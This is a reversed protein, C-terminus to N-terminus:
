VRFVNSPDVAGGPMARVREIFEEPTIISRSFRRGLSLLDKDGTVLHDAKGAIALQLFPTDHPDRCAPVKPLRSMNVTKCYPLYDALLEQQEENAALTATLTLLITPTNM